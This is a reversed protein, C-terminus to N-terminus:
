SGTPAQRVTFVKGDTDKATVTIEDNADRGYTFRINPNESLSIGGTMTFITDNGRKVEMEEVYKAPIYLGTLQNMQMGSYNPHRIMVQAQQMIPSQNADNLRLKMKGLQALAEEADKLAPASCGGAAKVFKTAMHLAGDNTELVARVNSYMDVRVRTSIIREGSGAAPGFTFTAAIPMPNKEIILTLAKANAAIDAPISMTIPVVAADEARVPAELTIKGDEEAITRADYLESRIGPWYDEEPPAQAFSPAATIVTLLLILAPLTAFRNAFSQAITTM